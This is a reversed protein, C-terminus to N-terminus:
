GRASLEQGVNRRIGESVARSARAKLYLSTWRAISSEM